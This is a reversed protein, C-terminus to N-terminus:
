RRDIQQVVIATRLGRGGGFGKQAGGTREFDKAVRAQGRIEVKWFEGPHQRLHARYAKVLHELAVDRRDEQGEIGPTLFKPTGPFVVYVLCRGKRDDTGELYITHRGLVLLGSIRANAGDSHDPMRAVACVDNGPIDLLLFFYLGLVPNM